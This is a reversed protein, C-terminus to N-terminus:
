RAPSWTGDMGRGLDTQPPNDANSACIFVNKQPAQGPNDTWGRTAIVKDGSPAFSPRSLTGSPGIHSLTYLRTGNLDTLQLATDPEDFYVVGMHEGEPTFTAEFINGRLTTTGSGTLDAIVLDGYNMDGWIPGQSQLYDSPRQIYALKKGDPSLAPNKADEKIVTIRHASVEYKIVRLRQQDNINKVATCYLMDESAWSIRGYWPEVGAATWAGSYDPNTWSLDTEGGSEIDVSVLRPMSDGSVKTAAVKNGSPSFALDGYAGAESTLRRENSGNADALSIYGDRAIAIGMFGSTQGTTDTEGTQTTDDTQDDGQNQTSSTCGILFLSLLTSLFLVAIMFALLTLRKRNLDFV